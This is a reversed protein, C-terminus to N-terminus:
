PEQVSRGGLGFRPAAALMHRDSTWIEGEGLEMASTLHVADAARLFLGPAFAIVIAATRRLLQEGAPIFNWYGADAHGLFLRALDRSAKPTMLGERVHRHFVCHVEAIALVSSYLKPARRALKDAAASDPENVYCKAIYASDFYV